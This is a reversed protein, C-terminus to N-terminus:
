LASSRRRQGSSVVLLSLGLLLGVITSIEPVKTVSVVTGSASGLYTTYATPSKPTSFGIVLQGISRLVFEKTPDWELFGPYYRDEGFYICQRRIFSNCSM